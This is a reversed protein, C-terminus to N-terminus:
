SVGNESEAQTFQQLASAVANEDATLLPNEAATWHTLASATFADTGYTESSNLVKAWAASVQANPAPPHRIDTTAETHLSLAAQQLAQRTVATLGHEANHLATNLHTVDPNIRSLDPDSITTAWRQLQV